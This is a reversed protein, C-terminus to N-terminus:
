KSEDSWREAARSPRSTAKAAEIAAAVAGKVDGDYARYKRVTGNSSQIVIEIWNYGVVIEWTTTIGIERRLTARAVDISMPADSAV